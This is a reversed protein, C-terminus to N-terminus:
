PKPNLTGFKGHFFSHMASHCDATSRRGVRGFWGFRNRELHIGSCGLGSGTHMELEAWAGWLGGFAGLIGPFAGLFHGALGWFVFAWLLGRRPVTPTEQTQLEENKHCGSDETNAANEKRRTTFVDYNVTSPPDPCPTPTHPPYNRWQVKNSSSLIQSPCHPHPPPPPSPETMFSQQFSNMRTPLPSPPPPAIRIGSSCGSLRRFGSSEAALNWDSEGFM